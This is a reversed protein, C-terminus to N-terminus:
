ASLLSEIDAYTVPKILARDCGAALLSAAEAAMQPELLAVLTLSQLERDSRLQKATEALPLANANLIVMSPKERRVAGLLDREASLDLLPVPRERERLLQALPERFGAVDPELIMLPRAPGAAERERGPLEERCLLEVALLRSLTAAVEREEFGTEDAIEAVSRQGDVMSLVRREQSELEFQRIRSSFGPSRRLIARPSPREAPPSERLADLALQDRSRSHPAGPDAGFALTNRATSVHRGHAEVYAPLNTLDRWAFTASSADMADLLLKRGRARLTETLEGLPFQGSMALTVFLPVGSARQEQEALAMADRSVGNLRARAPLNGKLYDIPDRNTVLIVEGARLYALTCKGDFNLSLEGNRGSAELFALIGAIPWGKVQGQFSADGSSFSPTPAHSAPPLREAVTEIIKGIREPTLIRKAFFPAPAAGALEPMWAPIQALADRLVAYVGKAAAEREAFSARAATAAPRKAAAAEVAALIDAAKSPKAICASFSPFRRFEPALSTGKASMVVVPISATASDQALKECVDSGHMDPLVFDLLIADPALRQASRVAESGTTAFHVSWRGTPFTLEILKRVTPSDDVVLLKAITM